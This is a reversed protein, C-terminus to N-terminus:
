PLEEGDAAQLEETISTALRVRDEEVIQAPFHDLAVSRGRTVLSEQDTPDFEPLNLPELPRQGIQHATKM